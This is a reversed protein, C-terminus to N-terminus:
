CPSRQIWNIHDRLVHRCFAPLIWALSRSTSHRPPPTPIHSMVPATAWHSLFAASTLSSQPVPFPQVIIQEKYIGWRWGATHYKLCEAGCRLSNISKTVMIQTCFHSSEYIMTLLRVPVPVGCASPLTFSYYVHSSILWPSSVSINFVSSIQRIAYFGSLDSQFSIKMFTQGNLPGLKTEPVFCM